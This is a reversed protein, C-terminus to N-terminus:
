KQLMERHEKVRKLEDPNLVKFEVRRNKAMGDKTKNSAIPKSEGYGKFSMNALNANPCNSAMWDHVAQARGESLKQNAAETGRSDTHGGIEIQLTPWQQFIACLDQLVKESEPKLTTKGTDFQLGHETITGTNLMETEQKTVEVPCGAKDVQVNAPTNPCQDIGDPVGDADADTPCGKADVTAGTPTSACQDLGDCVGDGDSDTPCGKADVTCGALTGPCTDIGDFVGDGDEDTPCGKADVKAGAITGACTDIGDPVGDGDSDVPCGKADIVAGAPTGPCADKKDPVGDADADPAKGGGGLSFQVGGTFALSNQSKDSAGAAKEDDSWSYIMDRAELRLAVRPNFHLKVGAGVNFGNRKSDAGTSDQPEFEQSSWGGLIYPDLSSGPIINLLADASIHTFKSDQQPVNAPDTPFVYARGGDGEQTKSSSKGYSGEIGFRKGFGLGLRGGYILDNEMNTEKAWSAYGLYPTLNLHLGDVEALATAPLLLLFPLLWRATFRRMRVE